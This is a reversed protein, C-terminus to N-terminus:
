PKGAKILIDIRRNQAATPDEPIKLDRDARGEIAVVRQADVGGRVLMHYSIQARAASLRWNDYTGSRYARGDTHGRVVIKGPQGNVIEAVRQVAVVLEPRPEASGVAFMGFQASDTLSILVGEPTARVDVNPINAGLALLARKIDEGVVKAKAEAEVQTEVDVAGAAGSAPKTDDTPKKADVNSKAGNAAELGPPNSPIKAVKSIEPKLPMTTARHAPDFPDRLAAEPASTKNDSEEPLAAKSALKDLVGMPDSFLAEDKESQGVSKSQGPAPKESKEENDESNPKGDREETHEAGPEQTEAAESLADKKVQKKHDASTPDSVGKTSPSRETLRVPNFYAAVQVITKKDAANVLWMVLFFAMMATMFDAYAIKWVGGHHAEESNGRRRRVIVLPQQAAVDQQGDSM